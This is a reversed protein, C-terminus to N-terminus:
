FPLDDETNDETQYSEAQKDPQQEVQEPESGATRMNYIMKGGERWYANGKASMVKEDPLPEYIIELLCGKYHKELYESEEVRKEGFAKFVFPKMIKQKTKYDTKEVMLVILALKESIIEVASLIGEFKQREM